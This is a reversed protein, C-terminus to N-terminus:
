FINLSLPYRLFYMNRPLNFEYNNRLSEAFDVEMNLIIPCDFGKQQPLTKMKSEIYRWTNNRSKRRLMAQYVAATNTANPTGLKLSASKM